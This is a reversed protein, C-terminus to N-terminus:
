AKVRRIKGDPGKVLKTPGTDRENSVMLQKKKPQKKNLSAKYLTERKHSQGHGSAKEHKAVRDEYSGKGDAAAEKDYKRRQSRTMVGLAKGTKYHKTFVNSKKARQRNREGHLAETTSRDKAQNTKAGSTKAAAKAKNYAALGGATNVNFDVTGVSKVKPKSKTNPTTKPTTKSALLKRNRAHNKNADAIALWAGVGPIAYKWSGGGGTKPTSKEQKKQTQTKAHHKNWATLAKGSKTPKPAHAM